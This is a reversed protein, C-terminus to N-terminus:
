WTMTSASRRLQLLKSQWETVPMYRPALFQYTRSLLGWAFGDLVVGSRAWEDLLPSWARSTRYLWDRNSRIFAREAEAARLVSLVEGTRTDLEAFRETLQRHAIESLRQVQIMTEQHAADRTRRMGLHNIKHLMVRVRRLLTDRLAEIYSLESTLGEILTLVEQPGPLDLAAAAASMAAQLEARLATDGDLAGPRGGMGSLWVVLQRQLRTAAVDKYQSGANWSAGAGLVEAPLKDGPRLSGVFDLSETILALMRGDESDDGIDFERQLSKLTVSGLAEGLPVTMVPAGDASRRFSIDHLTTFVNHHLACLDPQFAM